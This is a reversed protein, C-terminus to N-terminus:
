FGGSYIHGTNVCTNPLVCIEQNEQLQYGNKAGAEDACAAILAYTTCAILSINCVFRCNFSEGLEFM